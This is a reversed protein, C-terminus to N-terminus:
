YARNGLNSLDPVMDRLQTTIWTDGTGAVALTTCAPQAQASRRVCLQYEGAPLDITYNGAEDTTATREAGGQPHAPRLRVTVQSLVSCQQDKIRGHLTAAAAVTPLLLAFSLAAAGRM